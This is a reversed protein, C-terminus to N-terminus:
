SAATCYKIYRLIHNAKRAAQNCQQSLNLKSDVL